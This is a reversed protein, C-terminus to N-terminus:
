QAPPEQFPQTGPLNAAVVSVTRASNFSMFVDVIFLCVVSTYIAFEDAKIQEPRLQTDLTAYLFYDLPLQAILLGLIPLAFSLIFLSRRVNPHGPQGINFAYVVSDVVYLLGLPVFILSLEYVKREKNLAFILDTSFPEHIASLLLFIPLTLSTVLILVSWFVPTLINIAREM